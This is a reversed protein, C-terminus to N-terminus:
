CLSLPEEPSARLYFFHAPPISGAPPPFNISTKFAIKNPITSPIVSHNGIEEVPCM